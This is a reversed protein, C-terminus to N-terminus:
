WMNTELSLMQVINLYTRLAPAILIGYHVPRVSRTHAEWYTGYLGNTDSAYRQILM